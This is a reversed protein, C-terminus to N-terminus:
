MNYTMVLHESAYVKGKSSGCFGNTPVEFLNEICYTLESILHYNRSEEAIGALIWFL